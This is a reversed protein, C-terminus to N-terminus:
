FDPPLLWGLTLHHHVKYGVSKIGDVVDLNQEESCYIHGGKECRTLCDYFTSNTHNYYIHNREIGGRKGTPVHVVKSCTASLFLADNDLTTVEKWMYDDHTNKTNVVEFVKFVFCEEQLWHVRLAMLLKDNHMVVYSNNVYLKYEGVVIWSKYTPLQRMGLEYTATVVQAVNKTIDIDFMVLKWDRILGYLKGNCFAIDHFGLTEKSSKSWGYVSRPSQQLSVDNRHPPKQSVLKEITTTSRQKASLPVEIGSFLNVIVLSACDDTNSTATIWGGDHFGVLRKGAAEPPLSVRFLTNDMPCFVHEAKGRCLLWPFTPAPPQPSMVVSWSYCVTIFRIRELPSVIKDYIVGLVDSPLKSWLDGAMVAASASTQAAM